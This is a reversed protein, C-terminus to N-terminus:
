STGAMAYDSYNDVSM